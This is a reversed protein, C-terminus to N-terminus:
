QYRIIVIGSGGQGGIPGDASGGGGGGTNPTGNDGNRPGGPYTGGNGGGGLGGQGIPGTYDGGGGGGAYYVAAGSISSTRGDGGDYNTAAAGAGGGGGGSGSNYAAGSNGFGTGGAPSTQTSNGGVNSGNGSPGSAGGGSGGDGGARSQYGGGKGGGQATIGAFSSAQGPDGDCDQCQSGLGGSGVVISYSTNSVSVVGEVMGGAGGGGGGANGDGGGGGGGVILYEVQTVCPGPNFTGSSTFTHITWPGSTSITGGTGPVSSSVTIAVVNSYTTCIGNVVMARYYVNSSLAPSSYSATTAGTGGTVNSFSVNNASEQWQISGSSGALSLSASQGICVATATASATGSVPNSNVTVSTTDNGSVCGNLSVSVSYDGSMATTASANVQPNQLTSTFGNPGNWSYTGGAITSATLNLPDGECLPGNNGSVPPSPVANVTASTTVPSSTCGNLTVEVSYIGSAATTANPISPNQQSSSFGNPGTWSYTAGAIPDASLSLTNGACIPGSNSVNPASFDCDFCSQRWTSGNWLNICDTTTNYILLGTAPNSILDRQTETMRPPLMGQSTSSVDLIASSDPAAGSTNISVGQAFSAISALLFCSVILPTFRLM